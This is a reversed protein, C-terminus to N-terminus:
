SNEVLQSRWYFAESYLSKMQVCSMVWGNRGDVESRQSMQNKFLRRIEQNKRIRRQGNEMILGLTRKLIINEYSNNLTDLYRLRLM